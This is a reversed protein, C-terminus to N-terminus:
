QVHVPFLIQEIAEIATEVTINVICYDYNVSEQVEHAAVRIRSAVTENDETGRSVLRSELENISPPAIFISLCDPIAAKVKKAGQIDIELVVTKGIGELRTIESKLTGYLNGHVECWEIFGGTAIQTEFEERSLFYYHTGHIEVPRAPRTTASIALSLNPNRVLLASIITGKGVGSPGSIIVLSPRKNRKM